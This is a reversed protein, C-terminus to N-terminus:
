PCIVEFRGLVCMKRTVTASPSLPVNSPITPVGAAVTSLGSAGVPPASHYATPWTTANGASGNTFQHSFGADGPPTQPPTTPQAMAAPLSTLQLYPNTNANAAIDASCIGQCGRRDTVYNVTLIGLLHPDNDSSIPISGCGRCGHQFLKPILAKVTTGDVGTISTGDPLVIQNQSGTDGQMFLCFGANKPVLFGAVPLCIIHSGTSWIDNNQMYPLMIAMPEIVSYEHYCVWSGDCNVGLSSIGPRVARVFLPLVLLLALGRAQTMTWFPLM